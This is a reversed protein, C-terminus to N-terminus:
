CFNEQITMFHVTIQHLKPILVGVRSITTIKGFKDQMKEFEDTFNEQVAQTVGKEFEIIDNNESNEVSRNTNETSSDSKEIETDTM